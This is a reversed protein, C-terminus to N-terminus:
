NSGLVRLLDEGYRAIRTPGLGPVARLGAASTPKRSALEELTADPFVIYAPVGDETARKLRWQRLQEELQGDRGARPRSREPADLFRSPRRRTSRGGRGQRTAAWSLQLYRRARTIGVYLLRREEEVEEDTRAYSIPVLGEELAVIFVADFELGKSKHLTLLTVAEPDGAGSAGARKRLDDVFGDLTLDPEERSVRDAIDVLATLNQWRERAASGSPEKRPHWSMRARLAREVQRDLAEPRALTAGEPPPVPDRDENRAAERLANMAQGIEPREFFTPAGSVVYPIGADRLAEEFAESQSNIRYCVAMQGLPVGLERLRAIQRTVQRQEDAEDEATVIRPAPGEDTRARLQKATDGQQRLVRNALDLVPATSRYNDHLAIMTATPFHDPFHTLYTPSAGTFSYIAQDDDGVVCVEERDGLWARLLAWQAPNVDQFEDVTFFRYRDRVATAVEPDEHIMKTTLAIMDDYDVLGLERKEDEYRAYVEAMQNAPLPPVRDGLGTAYGSPAIGRAKAWEIESALDRGEVRLRRALPVLLRLKSQLVDPLAEGPHLRPWFYRLQAWAAAHFTAARVPRELGLLQLRHRLETAARDTFTVSLIQDPEAAGSAVQHAIRHTITRTKGSGAGALICVPGTVAEVARRQEAGLGALLDSAAISTPM